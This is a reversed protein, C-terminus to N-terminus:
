SKFLAFLLILGFLILLTNILYKLKNKTEKDIVKKILVFGIFLSILILITNM